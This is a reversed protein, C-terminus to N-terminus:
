LAAVQNVFVAKKSKNSIWYFEIVYGWYLGYMSVSVGEIYENM